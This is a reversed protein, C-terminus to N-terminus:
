LVAAILAAMAFGTIGAVTSVVTWSRLTEAETQDLFRNVLWFGSDNVHSVV